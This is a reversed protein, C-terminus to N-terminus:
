FHRDTIRGPEFSDSRQYICPRISIVFRLRCVPDQPAAEIPKSKLKLLHQRLKYTHIRRMTWERARWTWVNRFHLQSNTHTPLIPIRDFPERFLNSRQNESTWRCNRPERTAPRLNLLDNSVPRRQDRLLLDRRYDFNQFCLWLFACVACLLHLYLQCCQGMRTRTILAIRRVDAQDSQLILEIRDEHALNRRFPDFLM